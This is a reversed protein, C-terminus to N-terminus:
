DDEAALEKGAVITASMAKGMTWADATDVLGQAGLLALLMKTMADLTQEDLPVGALDAIVVAAVCAVTALLKRSVFKSLDM